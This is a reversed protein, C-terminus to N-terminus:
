SWSGYPIAIFKPMKKNRRSIKIKYSVDYDKLIEIFAQCENIDTFEAAPVGEFTVDLQDAITSPLNYTTSRRMNLRLSSKNMSMGSTLRLELEAM